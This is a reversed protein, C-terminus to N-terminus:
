QSEAVYSWEGLQFSSRVQSALWDPFPGLVIVFIYCDVAGLASLMM